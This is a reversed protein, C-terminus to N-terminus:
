ERIQELRKQLELWYKTRRLEKQQESLENELQTNLGLTCNALRTPHVARGEFSAL